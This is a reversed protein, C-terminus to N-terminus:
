VLDGFTAITLTFRYKTAWEVKIADAAGVNICGGRILSVVLDQTNLLTLKPSLKMARKAATKDDIALAFGRHSAAAISACEGDGLRGDAALAAFTALETLDTVPSEELIGAALAAELRRLQEPYHDTIEARAHETVIFRYSPHAALLDMRDVVLFNILTSTDIVVPTRGDM